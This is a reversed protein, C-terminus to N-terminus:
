RLYSFGNAPSFSQAIADGESEMKARIEARIEALEAAVEAEREKSGDGRWVYPRFPLAPRGSGAIRGTVRVSQGQKPGIESM